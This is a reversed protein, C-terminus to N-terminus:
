ATIGAAQQLQLVANALPRYDDLSNYIQASIRVWLSGAVCAVPVETLYQERLLKNLAAAHAPTPPALSGAAGNAHLKGADAVVGNVAVRVVAATAAAANKESSTSDNSSTCPIELPWPLQVAVMGSTSGDKGVGVALQTGWAQQLLQAAQKVLDHNYRAVRHPGLAQM